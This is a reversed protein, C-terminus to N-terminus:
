FHKLNSKMKFKCINLLLPPQKVTVSAHFSFINSKIFTLKLIPSWVIIVKVFWGWGDVGWRCFYVIATGRGSTKQAYRKRLSHIPYILSVWFGEIIKALPGFINSTWHMQPLIITDRSFAKTELIRLSYKM